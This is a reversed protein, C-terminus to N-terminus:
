LSTRGFVRRLQPGRRRRWFCASTFYENAWTERSEVEVAVASGRAHAACGGYSADDLDSPDARWVMWLPRHAAVDLATRRNRGSLPGGRWPSADASNCPACLHSRRSRRALDLLARDLSGSESAPDRGVSHGCWSRGCRRDHVGCFLHEGGVSRQRDGRGSACQDSDADCSCRRSGGHVSHLPQGNAGIIARDRNTSPPIKVAATNAPPRAAACGGNHVIVAPIVGSAPTPSALPTATLRRVGPMRQDCLSEPGALKNAKSLAPLAFPRTSNVPIDTSSQSSRAIPGHGSPDHKYMASM